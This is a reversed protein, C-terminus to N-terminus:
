KNKWYINISHGIHRISELYQPSLLSCLSLVELTRGKPPKWKLAHLWCQGTKQISIGPSESDQRPKKTGQSETHASHCHDKGGQCPREWVKTPKRRGKKAAAVAAQRHFPKELDTGGEETRSDSERQSLLSNIELKGHRYPSHGRNQWRKGIQGRIGLWPLTSM